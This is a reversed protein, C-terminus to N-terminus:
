TSHARCCVPTPTQLKRFITAARVGDSYELSFMRKRNERIEERTPGNKVSYRIECIKSVALSHRTHLNYRTEYNCFLSKDWSTDECRGAFLTILYLVNIYMSPNELVVSHLGLVLANEM